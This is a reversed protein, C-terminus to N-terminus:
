KTLCGYANVSNNTVCARLVDMKIQCFPLTVSLLDQSPLILFCIKLNSLNYSNSSSDCVGQMEDLQVNGKLWVAKYVSWLEMYAGAESYLHLVKFNVTWLLLM